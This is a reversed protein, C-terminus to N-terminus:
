NLLDLIQRPTDVFHDPKLKLLTERNNFGWGVAAVALGVKKCAEIDRVEDGAYLCNQRDLGYKKIVHRLARHKGFINLESHILDPQPLKKQAIFASIIKTSNSSVIGYGIRMRKLEALLEAVGECVPLEDLRGYMEKRAKALLFPVKFLPIQLKKVIDRMGLGRLKPWDEKKLNKIGYDEAREEILNFIMGPTDAITGDFDFIITNYKM